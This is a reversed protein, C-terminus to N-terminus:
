INSVLRNIICITDDHYNQQKSYVVYSSCLSLFLVQEQEEETKQNKTTEDKRLEKKTAQSRGKRLNKV